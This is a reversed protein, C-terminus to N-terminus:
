RSRRLRSLLGKSPVPEPPPPLARLLSAAESAAVPRADPDKAMLSEIAGAFGPTVGALEVLDPIPETCHAHLLDGREGYFPARGSVLRFMTAGLSYLDARGDVPESRAQEPSLWFPSGYVRGPKPAPGDVDLALGFDFVVARGDDALLVNAPKIDRHVIGAEHVHQLGDAVQAGVDVVTAEDLKRSPAVVDGLTEGPILEMELYNVDRYEGYRHAHIVNPHDLRRTIEWEQQFLERVERQAMAFSTLVKLAVVAGDTREARYVTAVAGRGLVDVIDYSAFRRGVWVDTEGGLQM